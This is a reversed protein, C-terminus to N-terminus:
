VFFRLVQAVSIKAIWSKLVDHKYILEQIFTLEMFEHVCFQPEEIHKLFLAYHNFQNM